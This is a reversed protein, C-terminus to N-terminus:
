LLGGVNNRGSVQPTIEKIVDGWVATQKQKFSFGVVVDLCTGAVKHRGSADNFERWGDDYLPIHGANHAAMFEPPINLDDNFIDLPNKGSRCALELLWANGVEPPLGAQTVELGSSDLEAYSRVGRPKFQMHEKEIDWAGLMDGGKGVGLEEPDIQLYACENILESEANINEKDIAARFEPSDKAKVCDTDSYGYGPAAEIMRFLRDRTAAMIYAAWPYFTFRTKSSNYREIAEAPDPTTIVINGNFIRPYAKLPDVSALGFAANVKSKVSLYREPHEAKSPKLAAKEAFTSAIYRRFPWPLAGSRYSYGDVFSIEQIDYWRLIWKFDIRTTYIRTHDCSYIKGDFVIAGRLEEVGHSSSICADPASSKLTVGDLDLAAIWCTSALLESLSKIRISHSMPFLKGTLMVYIYASTMDASMFDDNTLGAANISTHVHGGTLSKKILRAEEAGSLNLGRNRIYPVQSRMARGRIAHLAHRRVLSTQTLPPDKDIWGARTIHIYERMVDLEDLADINLEKKLIPIKLGAFTPFDRFEINGYRLMFIDRKDYAGIDDPDGLAIKFYIKLLQFDRALNETFFFIKETKKIKNFFEVFMGPLKLLERTGNESKVILSSVYVLPRGQIDCTEKKITKFYYFQM